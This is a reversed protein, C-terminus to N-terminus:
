LALSHSQIDPTRIGESVGEESGQFVAFSAHKEPNKPQTKIGKETEVQRGLDCGSETDPGLNPGLNKKAQAAPPRAGETGTAALAKDERGTPITPPLADVAATLDFLGAHAYRGLTLTVTSHRALTQATKPSAGTQVLRSIYTHRFAHFDIVRDSSDRYVLFGGQAMADRQRADHLSQLRASRAAELDRRLMKAAREPWTGPWVSSGAPKEALYGRLMEALDAAIPQVAQKRNKAYAAEVSVVPPTAELDFAEPTLSALESVRFGTGAATAYLAFRDRGSLDRFARRSNLTTELLWQLEEPTFDRRAHRIDTAANALKSMGALQDTAIRRDKWLCRTFSKLAVLYYNATAISKGQTRIDHLFGVIASPQFDAARVFRCADLCAQIRSNTLDVHPLVNGKAVMYARFDALHEALPTKAHVDTADVVGSDVRIGRRELEAAKTETAKKDRHGKVKHREGDPTYYRIHWTKSKRRVAGPFGSRVRKGTAPDVYYVPRFVEAM